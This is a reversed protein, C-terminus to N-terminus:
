CAMQVLIECLKMLCREASLKWSFKLMWNRGTSYSIMTHPLYSQKVIHLSPIVLARINLSTGRCIYHRVDGLREKLLLFYSGRKRRYLSIWTKSLIMHLIRVLFDEAKVFRLSSSRFFNKVIAKGYINLSDIPIKLFIMFSLPCCITRM